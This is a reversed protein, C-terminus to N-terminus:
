SGASQDRQPASRGLGESHAIAAAETRSAAGLKALINSVHVSATKTAIFLESGIEKNSQGVALLRLVELERSTLGALPGRRQSAPQGALRSGGPGGPGPGDPGARRVLRARRALDALAAQLPAAGLRDAAAAAVQYEQEADDRRGAEVLAEALRWRSRASEYVFGPDFEDVVAQWQEPTNEGGARRWEAEARALWGRGELGLAAEVGRKGVAGRRAIEVLGTAAQAAAAARRHEGAARAQRARDALAALGIAAARIVSPGFGM